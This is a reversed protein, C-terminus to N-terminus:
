GKEPEAISIRKIGALEVQDLVEIYTNYYTERDTKISVILLPVGEADAGLSKAKDAVTEKIMPIEVPEDHVLVQGQANILINCINGKRVKVEGGKEPLTLNIGKDINITTTCLFFILLLFMIDPLSATPISVTEREKKRVKLM